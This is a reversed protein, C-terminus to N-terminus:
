YKKVRQEQKEDNVDPKNTILWYQDNEGLVCFGDLSVRRLEEMASKVTVLCYVTRDSKLLRALRQVDPASHRFREVDAAGTYYEFSLRPAGLCCFKASAAQAPDVLKVLSRPSMRECQVPVTHGIFFLLMIVIATGTCGVFVARRDRRLSIFMIPISVIGTAILVSSGADINKLWIDFGLIASFLIGTTVFLGWAARKMDIDFRISSIWDALLRGLLVALPPFVPLIYGPLKTKSFSFFVLPVLAMTWLFLVAPEQARLLWTRPFYKIIATPLCVTWPLIGGLLIPIYLIGPFDHNGFTHSTFRSVNQRIFFEYAYNPERLSITLFWSAAIVLYVLIGPIHFIEFVRRPQGSLLLYVGVFMAPLALGAPGKLLTAIACFIYFGYWGGPVSHPKSVDADPNGCCCREQSRWFWWIAAWMAAEFPMDMRYWRAIFLFEGSTALVVGALFGAAAGFMRRGMAYTILVALMGSIGAVLRGGLEPGGTLKEAAAALWFFPAPKDFYVENQLHPVIWDGSQLMTRVIMACRTEDPDILPLSNARYLFLSTCILILLGPYTFTRPSASFSGNKDCNVAAPYKEVSDSM